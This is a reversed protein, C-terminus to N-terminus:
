YIFLYIVNKYKIAKYCVTTAFYTFLIAMSSYVIRGTVHTKSLM